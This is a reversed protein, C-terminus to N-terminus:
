TTTTSSWPTSKRGRFGPVFIGMDAAADRIGDGEPETKFETSRFYLYYNSGSEDRLLTASFGTNAPPGNPFLLENSNASPNDSTQDVVRYKSWFDDFRIETM